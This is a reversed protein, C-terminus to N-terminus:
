RRRRNGDTISSTYRALARQYRRDSPDYYGDVFLIMKSHILLPAAIGALAGANRDVKCDREAAFLCHAGDIDGVTLVHDANRPNTKAIIAHFPIRAHETIANELWGALRPNYPRRTDIVCRKARELGVTVRKREVDPLAKAVELRAAPQDSRPPL